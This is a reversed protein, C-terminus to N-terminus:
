RNCSHTTRTTFLPPLMRLSMIELHSFLRLPCSHRRRQYIRIFTAGKLWYPNHSNTTSAICPQKAESCVVPLPHSKPGCPLDCDRTSNLICLVHNQIFRWTGLLASKFDQWHVGRETTDKRQVRSAPPEETEMLKAKQDSTRNRNVCSNQISYLMPWKVIVQTLGISTTLVLYCGLRGPM